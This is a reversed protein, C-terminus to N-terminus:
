ETPEDDEGGNLGNLVNPDAEYGDRKVIDDSRDALEQQWDDVLPNSKAIAEDSSYQAVTAVKQANELDNQIATRQWTQTIKRSDADAVGLWKMIARILETLADRFYAETMSAKLELHSYLMKIAAGSANNILFKTPDIGQGHVFIDSKTVEMLSNRADVPIDITLKDLGSKDGTGMSEFKVAKDEKLAKKFESLSEGGYNTLILIVQQVDDVDNVFGNYVDDFVDILGKYKYLDPIRYKNKPFEIFPIRGFDHQYVNGQGMEAGTTVDYYQFRTAYPELDAYGPKQSRFVTVDKDTWYEHVTYQKGSDPDLQDYTRRVALLKQDLDSSYIPTVQDPPVIGYRFQKDADLWYHVWAVGANAADVVLQNLRLPFNDGLTDDINDNLQEDEVDIQPRDTALYGAEQDVLLQHFNSSVRNDASRLPEDKAKKDLKSEGNNKSTIDNRNLYYRVSTDFRANFANRRMDTNVLLQKM